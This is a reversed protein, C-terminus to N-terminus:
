CSATNNRVDAIVKYYNVSVKTLAEIEDLFNLTVVTEVHIMVIHISDYYAIRNHCIERM